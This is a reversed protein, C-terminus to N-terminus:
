RVRRVIRRLFEIITIAITTVNGLVPQGVIRGNRLEVFRDSVQQVKDLLASQTVFGDKNEYDVVAPLGIGLKVSRCAALPVMCLAALSRWKIEAQPCRNEEAPVTM